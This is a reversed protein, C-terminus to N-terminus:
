FIEGEIYTSIYTVKKNSIKAYFIFGKFYEPNLCIFIKKIKIIKDPMKREKIEFLSAIPM